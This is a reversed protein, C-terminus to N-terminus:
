GDVTVWYGIPSVCFNWIGRELPTYPHTIFKFAIKAYTRVLLFPVPRFRHRMDIM